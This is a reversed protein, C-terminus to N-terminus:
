GAPHAVGDGEGLEGATHTSPGRAPLLVTFTSGQGPESKVTCDGGHARLISRVLALGLGNGGIQQALAERGRYFPKFLHHMESRPIGLGHDEVQVQVFGAPGPMAKVTVRPQNGGYKVANEVLNRLARTLAPGDGRVAPLGPAVWRELCVGAQALALRSAALAEDVLTEVQLSDSRYARRGSYSGAFDLIQEV